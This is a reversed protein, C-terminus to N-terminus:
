GQRAQLNHVEEHEGRGRRVRVVGKRIRVGGGRDDRRRCRGNRARMELCTTNMFLLRARWRRRGLRRIGRKKQGDREMRSAEHVAPHLQASSPTHGHASLVNVRM